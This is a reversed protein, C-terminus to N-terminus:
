CSTTVESKRPDQRWGGRGDFAAAGRSPFQIKPVRLSVFEQGVDSVHSKHQRVRRVGSHEGTPSGTALRGTRQQCLVRQRRTAANRSPLSALQAPSEYAKM